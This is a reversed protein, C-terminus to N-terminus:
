GSRRVNNKSGLAYGNEHVATEPMLM